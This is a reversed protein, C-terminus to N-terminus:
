ERKVEYRVFFQTTLMRSSGTRSVFGYFRKSRCTQGNLNPALESLSRIRTMCAQAMNAAM